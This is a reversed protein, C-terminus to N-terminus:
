YVETAEIMMHMELLSLGDKDKKVKTEKVLPEKISRLKFADSVVCGLMFLIIMLITLVVANERLVENLITFNSVVPKPEEENLFDPARDPLKPTHLRLAHYCGGNVSYRGHPYKDSNDMKACSCLPRDWYRHYKYNRPFGWLDQLEFELRTLEKDCELLTEKDELGIAEMQWQVELKERHLKKILELVEDSVYQAQLLSPNICMLAKGDIFVFYKLMHPKNKKVIEEDTM